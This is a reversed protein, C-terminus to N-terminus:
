YRERLTVSSQGLPALQQGYGQSARVRALASKALYKAVYRAASTGEVLKAHAFGLHWSDTLCRYTAGGQDHILLHVHPLGSKHAEVVQLYTIRAGTARVRKLWKTTEKGLEQWRAAFEDTAKWESPNVGRRLAAQEAQCLLRFHAAPTATLTVLWTRPQQEIEVKAKAAWLRSRHRLCPACRRCRAFTDLMPRAYTGGVETQHVPRDCDGAVNRIARLPSVLRAKGDAALRRVTTLVQRRPRCIVRAARAGTVQANSILNAAEGRISVPPKMAGAMFHPGQGRRADLSAGSKARSGRGGSRSPM